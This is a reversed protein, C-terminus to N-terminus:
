FWNARELTSFIEDVIEKKKQQEAESLQWYKEGEKLMIYMNKNRQIHKKVTEFPVADKKDPKKIAEKILKGQSVGSASEDIIQAIEEYSMGVPTKPMLMQYDNGVLSEWIDNFRKENTMEPDSHPISAILRILVETLGIYSMIM